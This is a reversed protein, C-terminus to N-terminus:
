QFFSDGVPGVWRTARHFICLWHFNWWWIGIERWQHVKSLHWSASSWAWCYQILDAWWSHHQVFISAVWFVIWCSQTLLHHDPIYIQPCFLGNFVHVQGSIVNCDKLELKFILTLMIKHLNINQQMHKQRHTCNEPSSIKRRLHWHGRHWTLFQHLPFHITWAQSGPTLAKSFETIDLKNM